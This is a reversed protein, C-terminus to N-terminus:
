ILEYNSAALLREVLFLDQPYTIKLNRPDGTIWRVSLDSYRELCASTDPGEYGDEYAAQYANLLPRAEFVQPTQSRVLGGPRDVAALHGSTDIEVLDDAPIAPIAGGHAVAASLVSRILSLTALPRAADHILVLDIQGSAIEPQLFTLAAFESAHRSAAGPAVEVSRSTVERDLIRRAIPIEDHPVVLLLRHIEPLHSLTNLSWSMMRRGALPVYAKNGGAGLRSGSGAALVVGAVRQGNMGSM